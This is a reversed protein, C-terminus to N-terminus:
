KYSVEYEGIFVLEEQARDMDSYFSGIRNGDKDKRSGGHIGICYDYRKGNNKWEYTRVAGGSDGDASDYTASVLNKFIGGNSGIRSFSTSEIKGWTLKTARGEKGIYTGEPFSGRTYMAGYALDKGRTYCAGSVFMTTLLFNNNTRKIFAVDAYGSEVVKTVQGIWAPYQHNDLTYTYGIFDGESVCHGATIFGYEGNRKAGCAISFGQDEDKYDDTYYYNYMRSGNRVEYTAAEQVDEAVDIFELCDEVGVFEIIKSRDAINPSCGVQVVNRKCIVASDVINLEDAHEMLYDQIKKLQEYSYKVTQYSVKQVEGQNDGVINKYDQMTTYSNEVPETIAKCKSVDSGIDAVQVVLNGDDDLYCGGYTDKNEKLVANVAFYTDLSRSQREMYVDNPASAGAGANLVESMSNAAFVVNNGCMSVLSITVVMGKLKNKL